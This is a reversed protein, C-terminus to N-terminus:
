VPPSNVYIEKLISEFHNTLHGEIKTVQEKETHRKSNKSAKPQTVKEFNILREVLM